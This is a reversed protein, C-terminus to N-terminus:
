LVNLGNKLLYFNYILIDTGRFFYTIHKVFNISKNLLKKKEFKEKKKNLNCDM